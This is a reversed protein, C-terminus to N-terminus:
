LSFRVYSNNSSHMECRYDWHSEFFDLADYNNGNFYVDVYDTYVDMMEVQYFEVNDKLLNLLKQLEEFKM